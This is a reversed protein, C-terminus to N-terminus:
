QEEGPQAQYGRKIKRQVIKQAVQNAQVISEV